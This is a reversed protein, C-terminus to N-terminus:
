DTFPQVKGISKCPNAPSRGRNRNRLYMLVGQLLEPTFIKELNEQNLNVWRFDTHESSIQVDGGLYEGRFIIYLLRKGRESADQLAPPGDRTIAIPTLNVKFEIDGLEEQIERRIIEEFPVDFEDVNIRGGPLDYFGAFRGNDVSKLILAEGKNNELIVKLFVQYFDKETEM